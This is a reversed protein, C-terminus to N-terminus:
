DENEPASEVFHWVPVQNKITRASREGGISSILLLAGSFRSPRM